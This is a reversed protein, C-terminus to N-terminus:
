KIYTRADECLWRTFCGGGCINWRECTVCKEAPYTRALNRFAKVADSEYLKDLHESDSFDIPKDEFPFEAFHNCPLVRFAEDLNIGTGRPVHCCNSVLQEAVLQEWINDDILCIPFSIELGYKVNSSKMRNYIYTVFKGMKDLPMIPETGNVSLTPKVFQIFVSEIGERELFSVFEDFKNEDDSVVVYSTSVHVGLEKLNHYGQVMEKLGHAHTSAYYEEESTAKISIDVGHIGTNQVAKAFDMDAFKRGNSAVSVHIGQKKIYDVLECFNPYITPEGGILVIKKVCRRKLEDVAMKAKEFDMRAKSSLTNKAYCWSCNNNCNRNTTLWATTFTKMQLLEEMEKNNRTLYIVM